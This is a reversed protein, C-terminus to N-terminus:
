NHNKWSYFTCGVILLPYGIVPLFLIWLVIDFALNNELVAFSLKAWSFWTLLTFIYILQTVVLYIRLLIKM